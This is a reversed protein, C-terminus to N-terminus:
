CVSRITHKIPAPIPGDFNNLIAAGLDPHRECLRSFADAAVNKEEGAIHEIDFNYEQIALKWRRVKASGDENIYLLNKHDTRLTFHMDRLVYQLKQFAYVIAYAEKEPVSWRM